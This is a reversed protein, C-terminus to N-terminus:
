YEGKIEGQYDPPYFVGESGGIISISDMAGETFYVIISDSSASNTGENKEESQLVYISSANHRATIRVPKRDKLEVQISKGRLYNYKNNVTDGLSKLQAEERIFIDSVVLSDLKLDMVAGKMESAGQWAIPGIRMHVKEETILYVASDCNAKLEGQKLRVDRVAVARRPELGYYEMVGATIILTDGDDSQRHEFRANKKILTYKKQADHIGYDGWLKTRNEIDWVFVNNRGEAIKNRFSYIFKDAYLSDSKGSIRVNGTCEAKRVDTFYRIKQARLIRHGDDIRVKGIFDIQDKEEYFVAQECIMTLTDQRARVNGTLIRVKEGDVIKGISRDAHILELQGGAVPQGCILVLLTLVLLPTNNM